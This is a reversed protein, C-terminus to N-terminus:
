WGQPAATQRDASLHDIQMDKIALDCGCYACHGGWSGHIQGREKPSLKRRKYDM